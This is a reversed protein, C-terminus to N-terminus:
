WKKLLFKEEIFYRYNDKTAVQIYGSSLLNDIADFDNHKVKVLKDKNLNFYYYDRYTFKLVIEKELYEKLHKGYSNYFLINDLNVEIELIKGKSECNTKYAVIEAVSKDLTWSYGDIGNNYQNIGRYIKIKDKGGFQAKINEIETQPVTINNYILFEALAYCANYYNVYLDKLLYFLDDNEIELLEDGFQEIFDIGATEEEDFEIISKFERYFYSYKQRITEIIEKDNDFLEEM